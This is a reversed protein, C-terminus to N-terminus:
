SAKSNGDTGGTFKLLKSASDYEKEYKNQTLRTLKIPKLAKVEEVLDTSDDNRRMFLLYNLPHHRVAYAFDTASVEHRAVSWLM